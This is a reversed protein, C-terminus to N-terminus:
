TPPLFSRIRDLYWGPFALEQAAELLMMVHDHGAQGEPMEPAIYCLAPVHRGDACSALVPHPLYKVKLQAYVRELDDHSVGMLQGFVAGSNCPRVNVYPSITLEFGALAANERHLPNIGVRDLMRPNILGGYFFVLVETTM